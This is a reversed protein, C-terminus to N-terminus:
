ARRSHSLGTSELKGVGSRGLTGGSCKAIDPGGCAPWAGTWPWPVTWPWVTWPWPLPSPALTMPFAFPPFTLPSPFTSWTSASSTKTPDDVSPITPPPARPPTPRRLRRRLGDRSFTAGPPEEGVGRSDSSNPLVDPDPPGDSDSPPADSIAPPGDPDPPGDLVGGGSGTARAAGRFHRCPSKVAAGSAGGTSQTAGSLGLSTSLRSLRQPARSSRTDTCRKSRRRHASTGTSSSSSSDDSWESEDVSQPKATRRLLARRLNNLM